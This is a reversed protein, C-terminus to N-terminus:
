GAPLRVRRDPGAKLTGCAGWVLAMTIILFALEDFLYDNLGQAMLGMLAAVCGASITPVEGGIRRLAALAPTFVLVVFGLLGIWGADLGIQVLTQHCHFLATPVGGRREVYPQFNGYGIGLPHSALAHTGVEQLSHRTYDDGQTTVLRDEFTSATGAPLVLLATIGVILIASLLVAVTRARQMKLIALVAIGVAASLLAGRSLSIALGISVIVASAAFGVLGYFSRRHSADLVGALALVLVIAMYGAYNTYYGFSSDVRGSSYPPGIFTYIGNDQLLALLAVLSGSIVFIRLLWILADRRDATLSFAAWAIVIVSTWRLAGWLAATPDGTATTISLFSGLLLACGGLRMFVPIAAWRLSGTFLIALMLVLLESSGTSFGAIHMHLDFPALGVLVGLAIPPYSLALGGSVPILLLGLLKIEHGTSHVRAIAFGVAASLGLPLAM